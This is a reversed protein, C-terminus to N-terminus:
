NFLGDIVYLGVTVQVTQDESFWRVASALNHGQALGNAETLLVCLLQDLARCM